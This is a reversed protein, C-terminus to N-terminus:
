RIKNLMTQNDTLRAWYYGSYFWHLHYAEELMRLLVLPSLQLVDEAACLVHELGLSEALVHSRALHYRNTILVVPREERRHLLDRIYRLNELTNRSQAEIIIEDAPIGKRRLYDHGAQAESIRGRGTTGGLVMIRRRPEREYLKVARSLRLMYDRRVHDGALRMGPVLRCGGSDVQCPTDRAVQLVRLWLMILSLGGTLLIVLNSLLLVAFGDRGVTDLRYRKWGPMLLVRALGSLYLGRSLLSWAVMRTILAVDRIARFHSPRADPAYIAAIPIPVSRFGCASAKILFESELVFSKSRDLKFTLKRLLQAPYLRFGSQSDAIPYGAAWSIWFNAVKNALYRKPPFADKNALRAGVIVHQPHKDAAAMFGPIDEPRHQGDGDLTIVATAGAALAAQMGHWLAAGKGQNVEHRLVTVPLGRLADGTGDTSGDDVVFVVPCVALARRVVSGITKEENYAPVVVAIASM